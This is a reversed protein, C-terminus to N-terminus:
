RDGAGGDACGKGETTWSRRRCPRSSPKPVAPGGV